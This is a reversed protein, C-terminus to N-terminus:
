KIWEGQILGQKGAAAVVIDAREIHSQLNETFRHCVTVTAGALLLELAMPRGVINSAGVVVAEKGHFEIGTTEILKICGYPTCSRLAPQRVALCGVNFPHFGDVDKDAKIANLVKDSDIHEPLPLQVLIGDVKPDNNLEAILGLLHQQTTSAPLKYPFSTIGVKNCAIEKNKVYVHSAPDEGVLIVALGPGRGYTGVLRTVEVQLDGKLKSALAKGDIIKAAM